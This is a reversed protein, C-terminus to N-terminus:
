PLCAVKKKTVTVHYWSGNILRRFKVKTWSPPLSPEILVSDADMCSKVGTFTSLVIDLTAAMHGCHVGLHTTGERNFLDAKVAEMFWDWVYDTKWCLQGIRALITFSLPMSHLTRQCYYRPTSPLHSLNPLPGLSTQAQEHCTRPPPGKSCPGDLPTPPPDPIYQFLPPPCLPPTKPKTHGSSILEGNSGCARVTPPPDGDPVLHAM